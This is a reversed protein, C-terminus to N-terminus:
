ENLHRGPISGQAKHMSLLDEAVDMAGGKPEQLMEPLWAAPATVTPVFPWRVGSLCCVTSFVNSM